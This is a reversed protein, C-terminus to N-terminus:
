VKREGTYPVVEVHEKNEPVSLDNLNFKTDGSCAFTAPSVTDSDGTM